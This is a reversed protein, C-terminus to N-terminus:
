QKDDETSNSSDDEDKDMWEDHVKLDCKPEAKGGEAIIKEPESFPTDPNYHKGDPEFRKAHENCLVGLGGSGNDFTYAGDNDCDTHSCIGGNLM